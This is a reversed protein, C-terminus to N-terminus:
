KRKYGQETLTKEAFAKLDAVCRDPNRLGRVSFEEKREIGDQRFQLSVAKKESFIRLNYFNEKNLLINERNWHAQEDKRSVSLELGEPRFHMIVEKRTAKKIESNMMYISGALLLILFIGAVGKWVAGHLFVLGILPILSLVTSAKRIKEVKKVVDMSEVERVRYKRNVIIEKRSQEKEDGGSIRRKPMKKATATKRDKKAQRKRIRCCKNVSKRVQKNYMLIHEGLSHYICYINVLAIIYATYAESLALMRM